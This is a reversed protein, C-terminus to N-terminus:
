GDFLVEKVLRFKEELEEVSEDLRFSKRDEIMEYANKYMLVYWAFEPTEKIISLATIEKKITDCCKFFEEINKCDCHQIEDINWRINKELSNLCITNDIKAIAELSKM